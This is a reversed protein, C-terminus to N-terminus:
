IKIGPFGELKFTLKLTRTIFMNNVIKTAHKKCFFLLQITRTTTAIKTTMCIDHCAILIM